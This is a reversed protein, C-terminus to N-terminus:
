YYNKYYFLVILIIHFLKGALGRGSAPYSGLYEVEVVVAIGDGPIPGGPCYDPFQVLIAVKEKLSLPEDLLKKFNGCRAKKTAAGM